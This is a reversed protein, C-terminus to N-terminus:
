WHLQLCFFGNVHSRPFQLLRLKPGLCHCRLPYGVPGVEVNGARDCDSNSYVASYSRSALKTSVQSCRESECLRQWRYIYVMINICNLNYIYFLIFKSQAKCVRVSTYETGSITVVVDTCVYSGVQLACNISVGVINSNPVFALGFQLAAQVINGAIGCNTIAIAQADIADTDFASIENSDMAAVQESEERMREPTEYLNLMRHAQPLARASQSALAIVCLLLLLATAM